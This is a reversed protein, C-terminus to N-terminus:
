GPTANGERRTGYWWPWTSASIPFSLSLSIPFWTPLLDDYWCSGPAELLPPLERNVAEMQELPTLGDPPAHLAGKKLQRRLGSVRVMFFEDLNSGCIALFKVRELLPHANDQAEELIRRHFRMWSIERNIFPSSTVAKAAESRGQPPRQGEKSKRAPM